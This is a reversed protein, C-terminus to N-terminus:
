GKKLNFWIAVWGSEIFEKELSFGAERFGSIAMDKKLESIGSVVLMGGRELLCKIGNIMRLLEDTVINAVVLEFKGVVEELSGHYVDVKSEVKNRAVNETAEMVAVPDIDIACVSDAGLTAASIGLIGSGCGFDLVNRVTKTKLIEELARICLRTTEHGGGFSSGSGIEIFTQEGIRNRLPIKIVRTRFEVYPEFSMFLRQVSLHGVAPYGRYM